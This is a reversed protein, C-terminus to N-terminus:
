RGSCGARRRRRDRCSTIRARRQHFGDPVFSGPGGGSTSVKPSMGVGTAAGPSTRTRRSAEPTLGASTPRRAPVSDRSPIQARSGSCRRRRSTSCDAVADRPKLTPWRTQSNLPWRLPRANPVAASYIASASCRTVGSGSLDTTRRLRSARCERAHGGPAAQKAVARDRSLGHQDGAARARDAM